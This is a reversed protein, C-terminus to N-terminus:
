PKKSISTSRFMKDEMDKLDFLMLEPEYIREKFSKAFIVYREPRKENRWQVHLAKEKLGEFINRANVRDEWKCECFLIEGTNENLAIIDQYRNGKRQVVM